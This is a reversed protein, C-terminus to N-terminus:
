NEKTLVSPDHRQQTRDAWLVLVFNDRTSGKAVVRGVGREPEDKHRVMDGASLGFTPSTEAMIEERIIKTLQARTIKMKNENRYDSQWREMDAASAGPSEPQPIPTEDGTLSAQAKKVLKTILTGPMYEPLAAELSSRAAGGSKSYKKFKDVFRQFMDFEPDNAMLDAIIEVEETSAHRKSAAQAKRLKATQAAEGEPDKGLEEKIIKTLQARTIKM